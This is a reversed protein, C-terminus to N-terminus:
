PNCSDLIELIAKQQRESKREWQWVFKPNEWATNKVFSSISIPKVGRNEIEIGEGENLEFKEGNIEFPHIGEDLCKKDVGYKALFDKLENNSKQWVSHMIRENMGESIKRELFDDDSEVTNKAGYALVIDTLSDNPSKYEYKLPKFDIKEGLLSITVDKWQFPKEEVPLNLLQGCFSVETKQKGLGTVSWYGKEIEFQRDIDGLEAYMTNYSDENLKMLENIQYLSRESFGGLISDRIEAIKKTIKKYLKM